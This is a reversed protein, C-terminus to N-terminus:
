TARSTAKAIALGCKDAKEQWLQAQHEDDQDRCENALIQCAQQGETAANILDQVADGILGPRKRSLLIEAIEKRWKADPEVYTIAEANPDDYWYGLDLIDISNGEPNNWHHQWEVLDFRTILALHSGGDSDPNDIQRKIVYGDKDITLEGHSSRVTYEM